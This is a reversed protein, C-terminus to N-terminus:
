EEPFYVERGALWSEFESPEVVLVKGGMEYHGYGCLEACALEYEGVLTPTFRVETDFGPILDQKVRFEPVFFSHIVDYTRLRIAVPRGVPLVLVNRSFVDDLSNDDEELLGLPNDVGNVERFDYTGFKGDKGPYRVLWEFQKGAIEVILPNEAREVYLKDWTASGVLLVGAEAVLVMVAVPIISWMWEVKVSPRVYATEQSDKARLLFRILVVHGVIVLVGTVFLLFTIVSDIGAGEETAVVPRWPIMFGVVTLLTLFVFCVVLGTIIPPRKGNSM